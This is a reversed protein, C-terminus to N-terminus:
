GPAAGELWYMWVAVLVAVIMVVATLVIVFMLAPSTGRRVPAPVPATLRDPEGRRDEPDMVGDGARSPLGRLAM